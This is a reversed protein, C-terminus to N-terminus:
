LELKTKKGARKESYFVALGQKIAKKKAKLSASPMEPNFIYKKGKTGWEWYGKGNIKGQHIPM